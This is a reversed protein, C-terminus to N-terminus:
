FLGNQNKYNRFCMANAREMGLKEYFKVVDDSCALDIMYLDKAEEIALEM